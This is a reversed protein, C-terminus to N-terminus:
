NINIYVLRMSDDNCAMVDLEDKVEDSIEYARGAVPYSFMNKDDKTSEEKRVDLAKSSKGKRSHFLHRIRMRNRDLVSISATRVRKETNHSRPRSHSERFIGKKMLNNNTSKHPPQNVVESIKKSQASIDSSSTGMSCASSSDKLKGRNKAPQSWFITLLSDKVQAGKAKARAAAHQQFFEFHCFGEHLIM